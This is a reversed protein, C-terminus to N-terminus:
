ESGDQADGLYISIPGLYIGIILANPDFGIGFAIIDNWRIRFWRTLVIGDDDDDM